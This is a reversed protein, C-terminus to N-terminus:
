ILGQLPLWMKFRQMFARHVESLLKLKPAPLTSINIVSVGVFTWELLQSLSLIEFSHAKKGLSKFVSWNQFKHSSFHSIKGMYHIATCHSSFSLKGECWPRTSTLHGKFNHTPYKISCLLFLADRNHFAQDVTINSFAEPFNIIVWLDIGFVHVLRRRKWLKHIQVKQGGVLSGWWKSRRKWVIVMEAPRGIDSQGEPFPTLVFAYAESFLSSRSVDWFSKNLIVRSGSLMSIGVWSHLSYHFVFQCQKLFFIGWYRWIINMVCMVLMECIFLSELVQAM